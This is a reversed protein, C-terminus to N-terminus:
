PKPHKKLHHSHAKNLECRSLVYLLDNLSSKNHSQRKQEPKVIHLSFMPMAKLHYIM